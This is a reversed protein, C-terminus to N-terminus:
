AMARCPSARRPVPWGCAFTRSLRGSWVLGPWALGPWALGSSVEPHHGTSGFCALSFSTSLSLPPVPFPSTLPTRRTTHPPTRTEFTRGTTSCACLVYCRHGAAEGRHGERPPQLLHIITCERPAAAEGRHGEWLPQLLHSHSCETPAAAEGRHGQWGAAPTSRCLTPHRTKRGGQSSRRPVTVYRYVPM